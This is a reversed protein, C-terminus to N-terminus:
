RLHRPVYRFQWLFEEVSACEASTKFHAPLGNPRPPPPPLKLKQQAAFFAAIFYADIVDHARYKEGLEMKTEVSVHPIEAFLNALQEKRGDYDRDQICFHCHMSRPHVLHAKSRYKSFILQEVGQHGGPPQQEIAVVSAAEFLDAEEQFVHELRDTLTKGHGLLCACRSVREHRLVTIDLHRWERLGVVRYYEDVEVLALALNVIGVDVGLILM